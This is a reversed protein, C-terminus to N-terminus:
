SSVRGSSWLEIKLVRNQIRLADVCVHCVCVCVHVRMRVCVCVSVSVCVFIIFYIKLIFHIMNQVSLLLGLASSFCEVFSASLVPM